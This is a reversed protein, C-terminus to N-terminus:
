RRVHRCGSEGNLELVMSRWCSIWFFGMISYRVLGPQKSKIHADILENAVLIGEHIQRRPIGRCQFESVPNSLVAKLRTVLTKGLIKYVGGLLSIPRYDSIEKEGEM